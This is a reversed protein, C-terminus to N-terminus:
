TMPYSNLPLVNYKGAEAYWLAKLEEVKDPFRAALDHAESRDDDTHFLQWTDREFAGSGSLPGHVTVAKWGQHSIGRHGLMEYYQTVKHTPLNPEADFSYKM